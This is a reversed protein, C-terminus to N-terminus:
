GLAEKSGNIVVGKKDNSPYIAEHIRCEVELKCGCCNNDTKLKGCALITDIM